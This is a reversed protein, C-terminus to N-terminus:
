WPEARIRMIKAHVCLEGVSHGTVVSLFVWPNFTMNAMSVFLFLANMVMTLMWWATYLGVVQCERGKPITNTQEVLRVTEEAVYRETIRTLNTRVHRELSARSWRLLHYVICVMFLALCSLAFQWVRVTYWGQFLIKVQYDSFSDFVNFSSM